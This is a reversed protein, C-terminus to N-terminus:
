TESVAYHGYLRWDMLTEKAQVWTLGEDGGHSAGVELRKRAVEKERVSLWRVTEPYDPLWFFVAVSSLCSPIGELIFLWRWAPLNHTGNMHGVGFAIAGGFAGALTASALIFAVRISREDTRYWFTLYYVLGPFLGAEFMGLIFRVVTVGAFNSTAGLCMTVAGWSFMLFAIWKSPTLLKLFYNSPVEFIAYAVLFVMLAIIYQFNTM